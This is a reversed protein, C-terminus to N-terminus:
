PAPRRPPQHALLEALSLAGDGDRDLDALAPRRHGRDPAADWEAATVKGDGDVDLRAFRETARAQHAAAREADSIAGDGDTDLRALRDGPPGGRGRHHDRPPKGAALEAKSLAGDGDTDLRALDPGRRGPQAALEDATLKGDADADLDAFLGDIRAQHAAAREADSVAGDGDTDLRQDRDRHGRRGDDAGALREAPITSTTAPEADEACGFSALLGLALLSLPSLKAIM